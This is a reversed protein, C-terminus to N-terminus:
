FAIRHLFHMRFRSTAVRSLPRGYIVDRDQLSPTLSKTVIIRLGKILYTVISPPPDFITWFQTVDNISWVKLSQNTFDVLQGSTLCNGEGSNFNDCIYDKSFKSLILMCECEVLRPFHKINLLSIANRTWNLWGFLALCLPALLIFIASFASNQKLLM